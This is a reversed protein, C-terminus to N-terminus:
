SIGLETKLQEFTEDSIAGQNHLVELGRLRLEMTGKGWEELLTSGKALQEKFFDIYHEVKFDKFTGGKEFHYIFVHGVAYTTAAALSAIAIRKLLGGVVPVIKFVETGTSILANQVFASIWLKGQGEEYDVEYTSAVQKLMDLQIATIAAVDSLPLPILGAGAVWYLHMSVIHNSIARKDM